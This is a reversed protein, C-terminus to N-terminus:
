DDDSRIFPEYELKKNFNSDVEIDHEFSINKTRYFRYRDKFYNPIPKYDYNLSFIIILSFGVGGALVILWNNFIFLLTTTSGIRISIAMLIIMIFISVAGTVITKLEIGKSFQIEYRTDEFIKYIKIPYKLESTFNNGTIKDM